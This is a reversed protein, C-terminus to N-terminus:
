GEGEVKIEGLKMEIERREAELSAKVRSWMTALAMGLKYKDNTKAVYGYDEMTALYCMATATPVGIGGAIDPASVPTKQSAIYKLIDYHVKLAKIRKYSTEKM